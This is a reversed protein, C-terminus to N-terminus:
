YRRTLMCVALALPRPRVVSWDRNALDYDVRELRALYSEALRAFLLGPVAKAPIRANAQRAAALLGRVETAILRSDAQLRKSMLARGYPAARMLGTMGWATGVQRAASLSPEATEGLIRMALEGLTGATAEAYRRLDDIDDLPTGLLDRERADLLCRFPEGPLHHRAIAEGLGSAAPHAISQGAFLQDLGDRWWQLRIRGLLPESVRDRLQAVEQNFAYLAFLDERRDPPAFLVTGFRDRDHRRVTVANQSLPAV